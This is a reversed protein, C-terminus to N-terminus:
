LVGKESIKIYGNYEKEIDYLGYVMVNLMLSVDHNKIGNKINPLLFEVFGGNKEDAKCEFKEESFKEICNITNLVLVSVASCVIDLGETNFDSHGSLIFRYIDQVENRYIKVKIM